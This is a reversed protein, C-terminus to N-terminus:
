QQGALHNDSRAILGSAIAFGAINDHRSRCHLQDGSRAVDRTAAFLQGGREIGKLDIRGPAHAEVNPRRRAAEGIDQQLATSRADISEVHSASLKGLRQTTVGSHNRHLPRVGAPEIWVMLIRQSQRLSDAQGYDVDREDRQRPDQATDLGLQRRVALDHAQDLRLELGAPSATGFPTTLSGATRRAVTSETRACASPNPRRTPPSISDGSSPGAPM